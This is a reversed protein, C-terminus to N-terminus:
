SLLYRYYAVFERFLAYLDRLEFSEAHVGKVDTFGEKRFALKIRSIHHYQSIVAVSTLRPYLRKFNKVTARTTNGANDVIIVSDPIGKLLLYERMKSGEYFGEKGPGGSVFVKRIVSDRYLEIGKDLRSKLRGSLTGDTNVTNGFIIGFECPTKEDHLGDWVIIITHIVFWSVLVLIVRLNLRKFKWNM